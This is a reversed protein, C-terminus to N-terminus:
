RGSAETLIPESTRRRGCVACCLSFLLMVTTAKIFPTSGLLFLAFVVIPALFLRVASKLYEQDRLYDAVPPSLRYYQRVIWRGSASTLLYSDRFDRLAQVEAAWDAGYAATAIFCGGEDPLLPYPLLFEALATLENSRLSQIGDGVDISQEVSFDGENRNQTSDVATVTVYYTAQTSASVAFRYTTGNVLGSVTFETVNGAIIQNEDTSNIGYHILYGSVGPVAEWTLLASQNGGTATLLRPAITTLPTPALTSLTFTTVNGVDIPSPSAGNDADSGDYPPGPANQKYHVRYGGPLVSNTVLYGSNRAWSVDINVEDPSETSSDTLTPADVPFPLADAFEGGYAGADAVTNDIIDNGIGIDICPSSEQLHFDRASTDVFQPDGIVIGTGYGTDVGGIILDANNSWCNADVNVNNDIVGIPSNITFDNSRFINNTINVDIAARQIAIPNALFDNNTVNVTSNISADLGIIAASDFVINVIDVNLSDIVAVAISADILTFNSFRLDQVSVISVTPRQDDQPALWTRAAERGRVNIDTRLSLNENYTGSEVVVEDLPNAADIAAQITAFDTPVILTAAL